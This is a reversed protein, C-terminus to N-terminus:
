NRGEMTHRANETPHYNYLKTVSCGDLSRYVEGQGGSGLRADQYEDSSGDAFIVKM